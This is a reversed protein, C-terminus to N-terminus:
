RRQPTIVKTFVRVRLQNQRFGRGPRAFGTDPISNNRQILCSNPSKFPTKSPVLMPHTATNMNQSEYSIAGSRRTKNGLVRKDFLAPRKASEVGGRPIKDTTHLSTRPGTKNDKLYYVSGLSDNCFVSFRNKMVAPLGVLQPRKISDRILSASHPPRTSKLESAPIKKTM